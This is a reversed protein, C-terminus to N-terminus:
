KLGQPTPEDVGPLRYTEFRCVEEGMFDNIAQALHVQLPYIENRAFVRTANVVNGFASGNTPVVGILEAPVRHAALQDDRSVNKINFFEDKATAEGIPLLQIGDKKGNPSHFFLNRFNGLGRSSKLADRLADVDGANTAPDTLYLIFGAHSGNNYYRRRFLTASENLFASQLGALYMPLGYVEQNVDPQLIHCISGRAFRHEENWHRLFGFDQLNRHRRMYKALCHQLQMGGGLMNRPRELYANGFVLFDLAVKGFTSRSLLPHPVLTSTLMQAKFQIASGHHVGAMTAKALGDFSIPVDYWDGQLWCQVYDLLNRRDLVAEPDGFTFAQVGASPNVTTETM